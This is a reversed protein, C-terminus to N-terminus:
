GRWWDDRAEFADVVVYISEFFALNLQPAKLSRDGAQELPRKGRRTQSSTGQFHHQGVCLNESLEM